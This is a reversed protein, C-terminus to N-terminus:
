RRILRVSHFIALIGGVDRQKFPSILWLIHESKGLSKWYPKNYVASRFM